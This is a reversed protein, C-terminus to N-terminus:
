ASLGEKRSEFFRRAAVSAVLMGALLGIGGGLLEGFGGGTSLLAGVLATVLPVCFVLFAAAVLARGALPGDSGTAASCSEQLGCGSCSSGGFAGM